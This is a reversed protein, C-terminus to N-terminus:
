DPGSLADRLTVLGPQLTYGHRANLRRIPENRVENATQLQEYGAALAFFASHDGGWKRVIAVAVEAVDDVSASRSLQEASERLSTAQLGALEVRGALESRDVAASREAESRALRAVIRERESIEAALTLVTAVIVALALQLYLVRDAPSVDVSAWFADAEATTGAAVFCVLAGTVAVGTTGVRFALVVLVVIPCLSLPFQLVILSVCCQM